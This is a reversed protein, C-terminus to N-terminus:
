EAVFVGLLCLVQGSVTRDAAYTHIGLSDLSLQLIFTFVTFTFPIFLKVRCCFCWCLVQGALGICDESIGVCPHCPNAPKRLACCFGEARESFSYKQCNKREEFAYCHTTIPQFQADQVIWQQLFFSWSFDPQCKNFTIQFNKLLEGFARRLCARWFCSRQFCARQFSESLLSVNM